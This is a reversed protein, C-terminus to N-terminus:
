KKNIEELAKIFVLDQENMIKNFGEEKFLRRAILAKLNLKIKSKAEKFEKKTYVVEKEDIYDIFQNFVQESKNFNRSFDNINEYGNTLEKQEDTLKYIFENVYQLCKVYFINNVIPDIPVFVDPSIGGGAYVIRGDATYFKTTDGIATSDQSELEGTEFRRDVDNYYEQEKKGKYEKQICRGSPTYYRAVTLRIASGDSLNYQEQVLGKGFTRRGVITGRNMDQIAGALIESASASGEDILIAVKDIDYFNRGTSKYEKKRQTRGETYVILNRETFIQEVIKTAASLYGGSNQRVDIILHRMGQENMKEVKEMFEQFTTGSFRNIKIYGTEKDAMYGVDISLDPIKDRTITFPILQDNNNRRINVSVKSGRKGRLLGVIDENKVGVGAVLSDEIEIIKDGAMIGVKESPGGILPSVVLITDNLVYFQIGVGEFSGGLSENVEKLDESKIYNSHPDLEELMAEIAKNILKEQDVEDVYKSDIFRLIEDLKGTNSKNIITSIAKSPKLSSQGPQTTNRLQFGIYISFASVLGFLMPMWVNIKNPQEEKTDEVMKDLKYNFFYHM